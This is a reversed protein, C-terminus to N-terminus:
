IPGTRRVISTKGTNPDVHRELWHRHGQKYPGHEHDTHIDDSGPIKEGTPRRKRKKEEKSPQEKDQGRGKESESKNMGPQDMGDLPGSSKTQPGDTHTPGPPSGPHDIIPGSPPAPWQDGLPPPGQPPVPDGIPPRPPTPWVDIIAGGGLSGPTSILSLLGWPDVFTTPNNDVYPYLNPGEAEGLPDRQLFRGLRSDYARARSHYLGTEQDYERGTFLFPNGLASPATPTGYVDYTYSEAVAGASDTLALVSGLGDAHYDHTVGGRTM